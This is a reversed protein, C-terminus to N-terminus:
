KMKEKPKKWSTYPTRWSWNFFWFGFSPWPGDYWMIDYGIHRNGKTLWNWWIFWYERGLGKPRGWEVGFSYLEIDIKIGFRKFKVPIM